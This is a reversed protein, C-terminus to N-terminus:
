VHLYRVFDREWCCTHTAWVPVQAHYLQRFCYHPYRSQIEKYETNGFEMRHKYEIYTMDGWPTSKITEKQREPVCVDPNRKQFKVCHWGCAFSADILKKAINMDGNHNIGIEAILNIEDKNAKLHEFISKDNGM